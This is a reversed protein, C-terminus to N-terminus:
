PRSSPSPTDDSHLFFDHGFFNSDNGDAAIRQDFVGLVDRHFVLVLRQALRRVVDGIHDFRAPIHGDTVAVSRLDAEDQATRFNGCFHFAHVLDRQIHATGVALARDAIGELLGQLVFQEM